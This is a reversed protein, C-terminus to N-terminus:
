LYVWGNVSLVQGVICSAADSCLFEVAGAVEGPVGIRGAPIRPLVHGRPLDKTMDTEIFGPAV